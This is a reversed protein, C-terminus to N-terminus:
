IEKQATESRIIFPCYQRRSSRESSEGITHSRCLIQYSQAQTLVQYVRWAAASDAFHRNTVCYTTSERPTHRHMLDIFEGLTRVPKGYVPSLDTGFSREALKIVDLIEEQDTHTLANATM